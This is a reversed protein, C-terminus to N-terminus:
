VCLLARQEPGRPVRVHELPQTENEVLLAHAVPRVAGSTSLYLHISPEAGSLPPPDPLLTQIPLTIQPTRNTQLM